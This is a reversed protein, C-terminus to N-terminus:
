EHRDAQSDAHRSSAGHVSIYALMESWAIGSYVTFTHAEMVITNDTHLLGMNGREPM